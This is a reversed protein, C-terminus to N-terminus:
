PKRCVMGHGISTHSGLGILEPLSVNTTFDASINILNRNKYRIVDERLIEGIRLEVQKDISWGIGKAMSLINGRLVRELFLLRENENEIMKYQTYNRQNLPHWKSIHYQFLQDWVQLTITHAKVRPLKIDYSRGNLLMVGHHERFFHHIEEVGEDLCIIVPRRNILKYQIRPYRYVYGESGPTNNHNHYLVHEKVVAGAIAGRFADLEWPNIPEAFHVELVRLIKM